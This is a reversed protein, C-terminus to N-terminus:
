NEDGELDELRKLISGDGPNWELAQHYDALAGERDGLALRWDGLEV